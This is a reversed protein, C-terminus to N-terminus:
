KILQMKKVKYFNDTKLQYFYVGSPLDKANFIISYSGADYNGDALEAIKKGLINYVTLKVNTRKPLSFEITTSPNFPNPYNQMLEFQKPLTNSTGETSSPSDGALIFFNAM